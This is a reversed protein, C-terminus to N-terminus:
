PGILEERAMSRFVGRDDPLWFEFAECRFRRQGVADDAARGVAEAEDATLADERITVHAVYDAAHPGDLRFLGSAHARSRLALLPGVPEVALYVVETGGFVRAPGVTVEFPGVVGALAAGLDARAIDNPTEALPETLTIHPPATAASAPDFRERLAAVLARLPEPLAIVFVGFRYDHRRDQM